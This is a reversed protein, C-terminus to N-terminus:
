GGRRVMWQTRGIRITEGGGLAVAINPAMKQGNIFTGNTSGLDTLALGDFTRELRAHRSSTGDDNIQWDNGTARGITANGTEPNLRFGTQTNGISPSFTWAMPTPAVPAPPVASVAPMQSTAATAYPMQATDYGYPPAIPIMPALPDRPATKSRDNFRFLTSGIQLRAGPYLPANNQPVGNLAITEGQWWWQGNQFVLSGLQPALSEDRFLSLDCGSGRGVTLRNKGLPYEKGEYPGTSIGLLWASKLTEQVLRTAGGLFAGLLVVGVFRPVSDSTNPGLIVGILNFLAGGLFGGIAGGLAGRIIQGKDGRLIGISAGVGAGFLAWGVGRVFSAAVLTVGSMEFQGSRMQSAFMIAMGVSYLVQAAAGSALGLFAFLPVGPAMDRYWQGRLSSANEWALLVVGMALAITGVWASSIALVRTIDGGVSPQRVIQNIFEGLVFGAVGALAGIGVTKWLSPSSFAEFIAPMPSSAPPAPASM